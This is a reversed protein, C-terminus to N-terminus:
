LTRHRQAIGQADTQSVDVWTYFLTDKVSWPRAGMSKWELAFTQLTVSVKWRWGMGTAGGEPRCVWYGGEIGHHSSISLSRGGSHLFGGLCAVLLLSASSLTLLIIIVKRVM